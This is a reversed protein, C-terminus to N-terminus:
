FVFQYSGELRLKLHVVIRSVVGCEERLIRLPTIVHLYMIFQESSSDMDVDEVNKEEEEGERGIDNGSM